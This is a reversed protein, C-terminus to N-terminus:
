DHDTSIRNGPPLILPAGTLEEPHAHLNVHGSCSEGIDVYDDAQCCCTQSTTCKKLQVREGRSHDRDDDLAVTDRRGTSGM